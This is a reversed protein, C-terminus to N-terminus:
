RRMLSYNLDAFDKATSILGAKHNPVYDGRLLIIQQDDILYSEVKQHDLNVIITNDIQQYSGTKTATVGPASKIIPTISKFVTGDSLLNLEVRLGDCDSCPWTGIYDGILRAGLDSVPSDAIMPSRQWDLDGTLENPNIPSNASLADTEAPATTLTLISDNSSTSPNAASDAETDNPTNNTCSTTSVLPLIILALCFRRYSLKNLRMWSLLRANSLVAKFPLLNFLPMM